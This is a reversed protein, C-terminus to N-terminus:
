RSYCYYAAGGGGGSGGAYTAGLGGFCSGGFGTVNVLSLVSNIPASWSSCFTGSAGGFLGEGGLGISREFFDQKVTGAELPVYGLM